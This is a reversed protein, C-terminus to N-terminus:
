RRDRSAQPTHPLIIATTRSDESIVVLTGSMFFPLVM